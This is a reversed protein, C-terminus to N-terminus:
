RNQQRSCFHWILTMKSYKGIKHLIDYQNM